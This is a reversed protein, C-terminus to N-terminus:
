ILYRNIFEFIAPIYKSFLLNWFSKFDVYCNMQKICNIKKDNYIDMLDNRYIIERYICIHIYM